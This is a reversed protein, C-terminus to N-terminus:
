DEDRGCNKDTTVQVGAPFVPSFSSFSYAHAPGGVWKDHKRTLWRGKKDAGTREELLDGEVKSWRFNGHGISGGKQIAVGVRAEDM